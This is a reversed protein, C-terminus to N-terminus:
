RDVGKNITWKLNGQIDYVDVKDFDRIHDGILRVDGAIVVVPPPELVKRATELVRELNV